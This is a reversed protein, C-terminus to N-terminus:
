DQVIQFWSTGMCDGPPSETLYTFASRVLYPYQAPFKLILCLLVLYGKLGMEVRQNYSLSDQLVIFIKSEPMSSFIDVYIVAM